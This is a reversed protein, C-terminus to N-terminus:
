STMVHITTFIMEMPAEIIASAYPMPGSKFTTCNGPTSHEGPEYVDNIITHLDDSTLTSDNSLVIPESSLVTSSLLTLLISVINILTSKKM